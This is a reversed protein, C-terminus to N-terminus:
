TMRDVIRPSFVVNEITDYHFLYSSTMMEEPNIAVTEGISRMRDHVHSSTVIREFNDYIDFWKLYVDTPSIIFNDSFINRPRHVNSIYVKTLDLEHLRISISIPIDFRTSLVADYHTNTRQISDAVLKMARTRSYMQSAVNYTNGAGPLPPLTLNFAAPPHEYECAVPHYLDELKSPTDERFVLEEKSITRFPSSTFMEGGGLVWCHYFVDVIVGQQHSIFASLTAYGRLFDRPQGHLVLAVRM